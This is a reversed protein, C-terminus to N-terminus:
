FLNKVDSAFTPFAFPTNKVESATIGHAMAFAFLGILEEGNHGVMQAGLFKDSEEDVLLHSPFSLVEEFYEFGDITPYHGSGKGRWTGLLSALPECMSHLPPVTM